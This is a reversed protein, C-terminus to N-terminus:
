QWKEGFNVLGYATTLLLLRFMKDSNEKPIIVNLNRQADGAQLFASTFDIKPTDWKLMSAISLAIRKVIPPCTASDKKVDNKFKDQFLSVLKIQLDTSALCKNEFPVALYRQTIGVLDM